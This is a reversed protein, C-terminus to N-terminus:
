LNSGINRIREVRAIEQTIEDDSPLSGYLWKNYYEWTGDERLRGIQDLCWRENPDEQFMM